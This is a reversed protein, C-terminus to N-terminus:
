YELFRLNFYGGGVVWGPEVKLETFNPWIRQLKMALQAHSRARDVTVVVDDLKFAPKTM